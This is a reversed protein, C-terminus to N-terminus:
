YDEDGFLNGCDADLEEEEEEEPKEEEVKAATTATAAAPAATGMASMAKKGESVLEHFAKGELAKVLAEVKDADAKVGAEKLVKEVDAASPSANGGLVLLAYAAIHKM